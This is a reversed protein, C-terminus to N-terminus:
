LQVYHEDVEASWINHYIHYRRIRNDQEYYDM